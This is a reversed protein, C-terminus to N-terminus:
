FVGVVFFVVSLFMCVPVFSLVPSLLTYPQTFRLFNCNLFIAFSLYQIYFRIPSPCAFLVCQWLVHVNNESASIARPCKDCMFILKAFLLASFVSLFCYAFSYVRTSVFTLEYYILFFVRPLESMVFCFLLVFPSIGVSVCMGVVYMNKITYVCYKHLFYILEFM